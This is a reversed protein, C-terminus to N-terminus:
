ATRVSETRFKIAAFITLVLFVTLATLQTVKFPLESQTPALAKLAPVKEFLQVILVFFNLYLALVANVAYIRSWAGALHRGYLAYIAVALLILSIIGVAHSPLFKHVPFLFGTVSTLVTTWLFLPTWGNLRKSALLGFVVIFGSGIAVLSLAVHFLTFITLVM